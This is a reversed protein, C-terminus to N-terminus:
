FFPKLALRRKPQRERNALARSLVHFDAGIRPTLEFSSVDDTQRTYGTGIDATLDLWGTAGFSVSPTLDLSKWGPQEPPVGVLAKPEFDLEYTLRASKVWDFTLNGCNRSRRPGPM